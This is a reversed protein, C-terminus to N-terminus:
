QDTLIQEYMDIYDGIRDRWSYHTEAWERSKHSINNQVELEAIQHVQNLIKSPSDAPLVPPPPVDGPVTNPDFSTILPTGCALTQFGLSGLHNSDFQDLVADCSNLYNYMKPRTMPPIFSIKDDLGYKSVMYKSKNLDEGQEIMTLHFDLDCSNLAEFIQDNRKLKWNHRAGGFLLVDSEFKERISEKPRPKFFETDQPHHMAKVQVHYKSRIENVLPKGGIVLEANQIAKRTLHKLAHQKVQDDIQKWRNWDNVGTVHYVYPSGSVSAWRAGSLTWAHVLDCDFQRIAHIKDLKKIFLGVLTRNVNKNRHYRTTYVWDPIEDRHERVWEMSFFPDASEGAIEDLDTEILDWLPHSKLKGERFLLKANVGKRRLMRVYQFPLNLQNRLHLIEM